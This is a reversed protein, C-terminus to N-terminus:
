ALAISLVRAAERGSAAPYYDPRRGIEEFGESLYLGAAPHNSERVELIMCAAGARLAEALAHRLLLRGAGCRRLDPHVCINLLHAEDYLHSVIAYGVLSDERCLAWLQYNDRFCGLFVSESWPHSHGLREIELVEPLDRNVLPRTTLGPAARYESVGSTM